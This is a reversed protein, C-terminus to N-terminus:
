CGCWQPDSVSLTENVTATKGTFTNEAQCSIAEESVYRSATIDIESGTLTKGYLTWTFSCSPTCQASCTFKATVGTELSDPGSIIVDKPGDPVVITTEATRNTKTVSNSAVCTLTSEYPPAVPTFVISANTSLLRGQYFWTISCTPFCSTSCQLEITSGALAIIEEAVPGKGPEVMLVEYPGYNVEMLYGISLVSIGDETATSSNNYLTNYLNGDELVVCQYLGGDVEYLPSFTVTTNDPSLQLRDFVLIQSNNKLWTISAPEQIGDCQLSFPKGAIPPSQTTPVVSFPDTATLNKTTAVTTNSLMNTVECTLLETKSYNCFTIELQSTLKSKQEQLYIPIQIQSGQFTKGMYRWNFTCSPTCSATCTYTYQKGMVVASEGTIIVNSLSAVPVLLSKSSNLNSITDQVECTLTESVVTGVEPIVSITNGQATSLTEMDSIVTWKYSCSPYCNASCSFSSAVGATLYAPGSIHINSPGVTMQLTKQVTVSLGTVTNVATCTLNQTPQLQDLTLNLVPGQSTENTWTWSYLCTPYCSASCQFTYQIGVTVINVGSIVVSSPGYNVLLTYGISQIPTGGEGVLCQYLGGDAEQLPNFTMTINDASFQVGKSASMPLKNKLWTVSAPNQTGVCQLSFSKGSVPLAQSTAQVTFPDTVTLTITTTLTSHSITNTAVCTLPETKSYENFTIQLQNVTEAKGGQHLVPIQVEDGVLTKGMYTWTFSCSPVCTASCIYVYQRGMVVSSEGDIVIDSSSAVWLTLTTSIFLHSVTDEAQCILTESAVISSAPTVSLTNGQATNFTEEDVMVTWSYSCSPYCYASCTFTSATSATLYAPGSIQINSPGATVQLVKQVTVSNGTAPNVATCTLTVSPFIHLLQLSLEPGQTTVNDRTWNYSCGPYCNASCQFGYTIGVTVIDVGSILVLSPGYITEEVSGGQGMGTASLGALCTVLLLCVSHHVMTSCM